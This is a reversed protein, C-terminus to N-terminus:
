RQFKHFKYPRKKLGHAVRQEVLLQPGLSEHPLGNTLQRARAQCAAVQPIDRILRVSFM